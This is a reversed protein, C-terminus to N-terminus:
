WLGGGPKRLYTFPLTRADSASDRVAERPLIPSRRTTADITAMRGVPRPPITPM